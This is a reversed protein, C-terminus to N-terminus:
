HNVEYECHGCVIGNGQKYGDLVKQIFLSTVTSRYSFVLFYLFVSCSSLRNYLVNNCLTTYRDKLMILWFQVMRFGM